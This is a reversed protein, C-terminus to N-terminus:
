EDDGGRMCAGTSEPWSAILALAATIVGWISFGLVGLLTTDYSGSFLATLAGIGYSTALFMPMASVALFGPTDDLRGPPRKRFSLAVSALGPAIWTTALVPQSLSAHLFPYTGAAADGGLLLVALGQIVWALGFLALVLGRRGLRERLMTIM